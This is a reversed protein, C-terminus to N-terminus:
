YILDSNSNILFILDEFSKAVPQTQDYSKYVDIASKLFGISHSNILFDCFGIYNSNGDEHYEKLIRDVSWLSFMHENWEFDEFGNVKSYLGIFDQPFKFDLLKELDAIKDVSIGNQLKISKSEWLSIAQDTWSLIQNPSDM